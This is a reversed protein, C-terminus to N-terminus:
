VGESGEDDWTVPEEILAEIEAQTVLAIRVRRVHQHPANQCRVMETAQRALVRHLYAVEAEAMARWRIAEAMQRGALGQWHSADSRANDRQAEAIHLAQFFLLALGAFALVLVFLLTTM